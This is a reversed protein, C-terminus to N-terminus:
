LGIEKDIIIVTIRGAPYCREMTLRINCIRDPSNCNMCTGTKACPTKFGPHRAINMPAAITRVRNDLDAVSPVIKNKGSVIVVEKAGISVSAVRNGVMDVWYLAGDESIANVGTIYFDSLVAERRIELKVHRPDEKRFGDLFKIGSNNKLRNLIGKQEGLANDIQYLTLSDGYSIVPKSEKPHTKNYEDTFKDLLESIINGAEIENNAEIVNFGHKKLNNSTTQM